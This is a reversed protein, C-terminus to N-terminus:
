GASQVLCLWACKKQPYRAHIRPGKVVPRCKFHSTCWSSQAEAVRAGISAAFHCSVKAQRPLPVAGMAPTQNRRELTRGSLPQRENRGLACVHLDQQKVCALSFQFEQLLLVDTFLVFIRIVMKTGKPSQGPAFSRTASRSIYLPTIYHRYTAKPLIYCTSATWNKTSPM